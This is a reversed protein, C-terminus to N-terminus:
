GPFGPEATRRPDRVRRAWVEYPDWGGAPPVQEHSMASAADDNAARGRVTQLITARLGAFFGPAGEEAYIRRVADATGGYRNEDRTHENTAQPAAPPLPPGRPHTAATLHAWHRASDQLATM